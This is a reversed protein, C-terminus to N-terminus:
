RLYQHTAAIFFDADWLELSSADKIFPRVDDKAQSYDIKRFRSDLLDTLIHLTLEKESPIAGSDVLKAKLHHM